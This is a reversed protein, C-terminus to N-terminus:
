MGGGLLRGCLYFHTMAGAGLDAITEYGSLRRRLGSMCLTHTKLLRDCLPICRQQYLHDLINNITTYNSVVTVFTLAMYLLM